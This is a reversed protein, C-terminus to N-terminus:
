EYHLAQLPEISAARGGPILTAALSIAAIGAIALAITAPDRPSIGYLLSRLLSASVLTLPLGLAIGALCLLLSERIVMWLVDARQAGLAMRIGVEATRRSVNYALTGYLGTSVLLVALLGFCLSLRAVLREDSITSDFQAQQTMPQLLALDPSLTAVTKRILPLFQQPDGATRVEFHLIGFDPVQTYPFWAMPIDQERVGTYKSDAVIGIITYSAKKTFSVQHGLPDRAGFFKRAFTESIIAAKPAPDSAGATFDRGRLIPVGATSFFDPGVANWRMFSSLNPKGSTPDQGDVIADTNNSWGSGLRNEMLSASQIGPLARLRDLLTQYFSIATSDTRNRLQPDVGFVILGPTKLGLNVHELNRMTGTLLGAAAVLMLCLAIQLAVILRGARLHAATQSLNAASGRLAGGLPTRLASALPLLSFLLAAALSIAITFGLVGRDPAVNFPLDAWAALAKVAVLSVFWGLAAGAASLLLSEALLQRFLRYRSGGLALRVSFERQRATNRALLLMAINGCAIALILAVMAMLVTLPRAENEYGPVGRLPTFALRRPDEGRQPHGGLSAYAAHLFAPNLAAEAQKLSVGPALRAILPLCWWNPDDYFSPNSAGWANFERRHQLPLWVDTPASELGSFGSQAVGVIPFPFGKVYLNQGIANACQGGFSRQFYANGLVAVANHNTEDGPSLPRGCEIRVGLGSFLNGSVLVVAAEEPQASHRVAVKNYGLPVHAIVDALADHRARLTSFAPYSFSSDANGTNNAGDPQEPLVRLSVLQNPDRVPLSRLLAANIISFIAANAGIGLALVLIAVLSFLPNAALIRAAFRLDKALDELWLSRWMSRVEEQIYTPNGFARLAAYRAEAPSAGQERREGAEIELHARLEREIDAERRRRSRGPWWPM